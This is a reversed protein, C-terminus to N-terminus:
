MASVQLQQWSRYLLNQANDVANGENHMGCLCHSHCLKFHLLAL